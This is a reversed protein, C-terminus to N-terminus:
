PRPFSALLCNAKKVMDRLKHNIDPFDSLNYHLFHGLHTVTDLFSFQQGCFNFRATCSSSSSWSFRILQTKSLNLQLGREFVIDECCHLMIRLAAPSPALLVVDDAYGMAGAFVSDWFCGVGRLKHNIDPFDSLNYHLFHGLHTVTDLFSFQQGCFNFRATCSSSSSWSFRILQTKSLNLQLGREFVIDECCHLMIRLAAPSPALLVVDDAYGMAGAFVSDWFCGVGRNQLDDLLDDTYITFLIPSLVGGQRVGNSIPFSDSFANKWRVCM